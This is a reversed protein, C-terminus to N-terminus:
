GVSGGLRGQNKLFHLSLPPRQNGTKGYIRKSRLGCRELSANWAPGQKLARTNIRVKAQYAKEEVNM